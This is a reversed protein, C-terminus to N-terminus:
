KASEKKTLDEDLADLEAIICDPLKPLYAWAVVDESPYKKTGTVEPVEWKWKNDADEFFVAIAFNWEWEQKLVVLVEESESAGYLPPTGYHWKVMSYKEQEKMKCEGKNVSENNSTAIKLGSRSATQM